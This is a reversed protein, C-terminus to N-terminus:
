GRPHAKEHVQKLRKTTVYTYIQTTSIDAHGLMSQVSRLDAGRELLHSAFSHRLMHPYIRPIGAEKAYRKLKKWFGQRTIPKVSRNVFLYPSDMGKLLFPRCQTLYLDLKKLAMPSVPVVREKAGKGYAILYGGEPHLSTLPLGVLESVRLGTAYLLEIMADDRMGLVPDQKPLNLLREIDNLSLTKPLHFPRRQVGVHDMPDQRIREMSLLYKFLGRLSSLIRLISSSSLGEKKLQSLFRVIEEKRIKEVPIRTFLFFRLLDQRYALQTNKSLGKEVSLYDLFEEIVEKSSPKM